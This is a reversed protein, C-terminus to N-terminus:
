DVSLQKADNRCQPNDTAGFDSQVLGAIKRFFWRIPESTKGETCHHEDGIVAPWPYSDSKPAHHLVVVRDERARYM